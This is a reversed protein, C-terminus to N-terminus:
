ARHGTASAAPTPDSGDDGYGDGKRRERIGHPWAAPRGRIGHCPVRNPGYSVALRSSPKCRYVAERDGRQRRKRPDFIADLLVKLYPRVATDCHLYLLGTPQLLRHVELLRVTISALYALMDSQGLLRRMSRKRATHRGVPGPLWPLIPSHRRLLTRRAAHHGQRSPYSHM